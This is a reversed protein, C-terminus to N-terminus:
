TNNLVLTLQSFIKMLLALYLPPERRLCATGYDTIRAGFLDLTKLGTLGTLLTTGKINSVWCCAYIVM